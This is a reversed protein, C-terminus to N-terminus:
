LTGPNIDPGWELKRLGWKKLKPPPKGGNKGFGLLLV